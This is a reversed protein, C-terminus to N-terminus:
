QQISKYYEKAVDKTEEKDIDVKANLETLSETDMAASIKNLIQAIDPHSKLVNDRVVPGLNYPPWVNLDDKLLTFQKEDALQGETTYVPCVDAQDKSLVDYKIGNDYIKTSKWDFKGYAKELAPIGDQREDFEGQSAFRLQDAHKQLDSITEIGLKEAMESRIALGQGNNASSYDLWTLQLTKKYEEKVIDYVQKPDAEPEMGLVSLLATGTYEPYMDIEDNVISTHIVSGAINFVREVKYGADELALAYVESVILGETFDKSGMRIVPDKDEAGQSKNGKDGCAAISMMVAVCMVLVTIKKVTRGKRKMKSSILLKNEEFMQKKM